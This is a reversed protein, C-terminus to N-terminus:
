PQGTPLQADGFRGDSQRVPKKPARAARRSTLMGVILGLLLLSLGVFISGVPIYARVANIKFASDNSLKVLAKQDKDITNLDARAVTMSGRGDPTQVTSHINQRVKVPVGTRPDVWFSIQASSYRDVKQAPAKPDMGLLKAPLKTDLGATKTNPIQQDFRYVKLGDVKDTGVYRMPSSQKTTMDFFPYDRKQVNALPFVLAYGSLKVSSDGDVNVGCCQVLEATRRDLAIRFGQIQIPKAPNAEDFINTTSDWVAIRNDGNNARVDGRVTNNAMLTVGTRAKLTAADFYTANRAELRTLQYRNLPLLIVQDAVYFRVLPALTLFFAGLAILILGASRRM